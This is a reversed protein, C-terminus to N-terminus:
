CKQGLKVEGQKLHISNNKYCLNQLREALFHEPADLNLVLELPHPIELRAKSFTILLWIAMAKARARVRCLSPRGVGYSIQVALTEPVTVTIM